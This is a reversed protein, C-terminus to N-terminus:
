RTGKRERPKLCGMEVVKEPHGRLGVGVYKLPCPVVSVEPDGREAHVRVRQDRGVEASRGDGLKKRLARGRLYCQGPVVGSLKTRIKV